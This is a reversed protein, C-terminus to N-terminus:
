LYFIKLNMKKLGHIIENNKYLINTCIRITEKLFINTLLSDIDLSGIFNSSDQDVFESAFNLSDKVAYQNNTLPELIPVLYKALKHIPTKLASLISRFPRCGDACKKHVKLLWVKNWTYNGSTEFRRTEESM